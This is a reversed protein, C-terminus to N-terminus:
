EPNVVAKNADFVLGETRGNNLILKRLVDDRARSRDVVRQIPQSGSKNPARHVTGSDTRVPAAPPPIPESGGNAKSDDAAPADLSTIPNESGILPLVQQIAVCVAHRVAFEEPSFYGSATPANKDNPGPMGSAPTAASAAVFAAAPPPPSAPAPSSA